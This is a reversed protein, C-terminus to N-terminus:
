VSRSELSILARWTLLTRRGRLSGRSKEGAYTKEVPMLVLWRYRLLFRLYAEMWTRPLM